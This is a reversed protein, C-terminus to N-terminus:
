VMARSKFSTKAKANVTKQVKKIFSIFAQNQKEIEVKM